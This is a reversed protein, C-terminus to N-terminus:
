TEPIVYGYLDSFTTGMDDDTTGIGLSSLLLYFPTSNTYIIKQTNILPRIVEPVLTVSPPVVISTIKRKNAEVFKMLRDFLKKNKQELGRLYTEDQLAKGKGIIPVVYGKNPIVFPGFDPAFVDQWLMYYFYNSDAPEGTYEGKDKVPLTKLFRCEGDMLSKYVRGEHELVKFICESATISKDKEVKNLFWNAFAETADNTEKSLASGRLGVGKIDLQPKKLIKGEQITIKGVYHKASPTSLMLPYLFENKMSIKGIDDKHMGFGVSLRAFVHELSLTIMLVIFASIEYAGKTFDLQGLYWEVWSQTTFIVSDTDSVIVTNRVMAPHALADPTDMDVRVFLELIDGIDDLCRNMHQSIAVLKRVAEPMIDVLESASLSDPNQVPDLILEANLATVTALLDGNIKFIDTPKIDDTVVVNSDFFRAFFDRFYADNYHIINKLCLAYFVFVREAKTLSTILAILQDKVTNIYMHYQMGHSLYNVVDDITPIYLKHKNVCNALVEISPMSGVISIVFNHVHNMDPFFNNGMILREVHSYGCMIAHRATSTIANYGSVDYLCNFPSGMAGSISNNNIKVNAQQYHARQETIEDGRAKADLMVKKIIKRRKINETVKEKLISLTENPPKYVSGSPTVIRGAIAYTHDLLDRHDLNADGYSPYAIQKLKPRHINSRVTTEVYKRISEESDNPNTHRLYMVMNNVYSTLFKDKSKVYDEKLFHSM